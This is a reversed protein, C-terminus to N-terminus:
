ISKVVRFHGFASKGCKFVQKLASNWEFSIHCKSWRVLVVDRDGLKKKKKLNVKYLYINSARASLYGLGVCQGALPIDSNM